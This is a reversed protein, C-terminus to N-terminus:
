ADGRGTVNQRLPFAHLVQNGFVIRVQPKQPLGQQGAVAVRDGDGTRDLLRPDRQFGVLEVDLGADSYWGKERALYLGASNPWPHFYELMVRVGIM